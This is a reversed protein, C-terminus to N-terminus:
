KKATKKAAAKKAEAEKAKGPSLADAPRRDAIFQEVKAIVARHQTQPWHKLLRSWATWVEDEFPVPKRVVPKRTASAAKHAQKLTQKKQMVDDILGAKRVEEVQGARYETTKAESALQAVRTKGAGKGNFSDSVKNKGGAVQRARGEKELQPGRVKAIAALRQDDTLHRRFVNLRLIEAPIDEDAGAFVEYPVDTQIGLENAIAWRNRGDIITDRDQNVVIPVLIGNAKIDNRLDNMENGELGAFMRAVPHVKM